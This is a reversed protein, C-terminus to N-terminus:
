SQRPVFVQSLQYTRTQGRELWQVTVTAMVLSHQKNTYGITWSMVGESDSSGILENSPLTVALALERRAIDVATELKNASSSASSGAMVAAMIGMVGVSMVLMAVLVELLTFGRRHRFTRM